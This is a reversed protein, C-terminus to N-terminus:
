KARHDIYVKAIEDIKKSFIIICSTDQDVHFTDTICLLEHASCPSEGQMLGDYYDFRSSEGLAGLRGAGV